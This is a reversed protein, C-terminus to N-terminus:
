AVMTIDVILGAGPEIRFGVSKGVRGKANLFRRVIVRLSLGGEEMTSETTLYIDSVSRFSDLITSHLENPDMTLIITKNKGALKKFLGMLKISSEKDISERVLSSFADIIIIDNEFLRPESVLRTLFDKRPLPKGILPFVPIFLLTGTLLYNLVSYDLSEMQDVFGKTTLETSIYTVSHGHTLFGYLFRQSIASKGTGHKGEILMTTGKPIGGALHRHFSDRELEFLYEEKRLIM